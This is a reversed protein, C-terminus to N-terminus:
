SFLLYLKLRELVKRRDHWPLDMVAPVVLISKHYIWEKAEAADWLPADPLVLKYVETKQVSEEDTISFKYPPIEIVKITQRGAEDVYITSDMVDLHVGFDSVYERRKACYYMNSKGGAAILPAGCVLCTYGM